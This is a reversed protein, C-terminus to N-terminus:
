ASTANAYVNTGTISHLLGTMEELVKNPNTVPSTELKSNEFLSEYISRVISDVTEKFSSHIEVLDSVSKRLEILKRQDELSPVPM